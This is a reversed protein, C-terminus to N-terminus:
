TPLAALAMIEAPSISGPARRQRAAQNALRQLVENVPTPV